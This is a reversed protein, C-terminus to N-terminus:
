LRPRVVHRLRGGPLAAVPEIVFAEDFVAQLAVHLVPDDAAADAVLRGRSLLWVRDAALALTLDHLVVAVACGARARREVSQVLARQHPLDLHATPEDLLLVPAEVALARALLVRQREGGSLENFRRAAFAQAETEALAADVAAEDAAGPVGVLGHHPLRGLRVVDRVALEGEAEHQQAMWALARARERAPWAALARGFLRVEGADPTELGALLSLLSSKGAGNPGVIAVWRGRELAVSVDDVVRRGGRRWVLGDAALALEGLAAPSRGRNM